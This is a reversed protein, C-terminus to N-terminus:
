KSNLYGKQEGHRARRVSIIRIRNNRLTYIATWVKNKYAAIIAFRIENQTRAPIIVRRQDLWLQKAEYFHIDHKKFNSDSKKSDWEFDM